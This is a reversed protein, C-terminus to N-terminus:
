DTVKWPKKLERHNYIQADSESGLGGVDAWIFKYDADVMAMLVMTTSMRDAEM